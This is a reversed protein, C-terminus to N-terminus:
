SRKREAGGDRLGELLEVLRLLDDIRIAVERKTDMGGTDSAGGLGIEPSLLMSFILVYLAIETSVFSVVLIAIGFAALVASTPPTRAIVAAIGLLLIMLLAYLLMTRLESSLAYM